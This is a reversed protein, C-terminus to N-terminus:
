DRLTKEVRRSWPRRTGHRTGRHAGLRPRLPRAHMPLCPTPAALAAVPAALWPDVGALMGIVAAGEGEVFPIFSVLFVGAGQLARDRICM